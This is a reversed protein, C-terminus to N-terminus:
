EGLIERFKIEIKKKLSVIIEPIKKYAFSVDNKKADM